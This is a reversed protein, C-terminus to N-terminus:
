AIFQALLWGYFALVLVAAIPSPLNEDLYTLAALLRNTKM